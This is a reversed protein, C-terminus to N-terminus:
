KKKEENVQDVVSQADPTLLAPLVWIWIAAGIIVSVAIFAGLVPSPKDTDPTM